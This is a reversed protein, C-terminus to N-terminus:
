SPCDVHLVGLMQNAGAANGPAIGKYHEPSEAAELGRRVIESTVKLRDGTFMTEHDGPAWLVDVGLEAIQEWGCSATAGAIERAETARILTIRVPVRRGQYQQLASFTEYSTNHMFQPLSFHYRQALRHLRLWNSLYFRDRSEKIMRWLLMWGYSLKKHSSLGHLKNRHYAFRGGSGKYHLWSDNRRAAELSEVYGPLWADFLALYNVREGSQIFQRAVEVTLPAAACWGALSYPGQPQVKRIEAVYTQVRQEINLQGDEELERLGYFPQDAGLSMSLGQYLLYSHIM